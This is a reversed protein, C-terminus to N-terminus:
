KSTGKKNDYNEYLIKRIEHSISTRNKLSNELFFNYVEEELRISIPKPKSM